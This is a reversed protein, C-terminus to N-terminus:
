VRVAEDQFVSSRSCFCADWAQGATHRATDRHSGRRGQSARQVEREAHQRLSETAQVYEGPAAQINELVGGTTDRMAQLDQATAGGLCVLVFVLM